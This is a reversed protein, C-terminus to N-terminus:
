RLRVEEVIHRPHGSYFKSCVAVATVSDHAFRLIRVCDFLKLAQEL